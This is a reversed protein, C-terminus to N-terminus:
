ELKNQWEDEALQREREMKALEAVGKTGKKARVFRRMVDVARSKAAEAEM